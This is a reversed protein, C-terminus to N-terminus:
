ILYYERSLRLHAKSVSSWTVATGTLIMNRVTLSFQTSEVSRSMGPSTVVGGFEGGDGWGGIGINLGTDETLKESLIIDALADLDADDVVGSGNIDHLTKDSNGSNIATAVLAMDALDVKGDRNIDGKYNAASVTGAAIAVLCISIM